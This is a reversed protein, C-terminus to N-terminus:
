DSEMKDPAAMDPAVVDPEVVDPMILDPEVVDPGIIDPEVTASAAVPEPVYVAEPKSDLMEEVSQEPKVVSEEDKPGSEMEKLLKDLYDEQSPM